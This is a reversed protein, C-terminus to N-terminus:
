AAAQLLKSRICTVLEEVRLPKSLFTFGGFHAQKAVEDQTVLSTLFVVPKAKLLPDESFQRAVGCGDMQPMDVDLLVLDPNFDRATQWAKRSDNQAEVEYGNRRLLAKLLGTVGPHDDVVLIRHNNNM